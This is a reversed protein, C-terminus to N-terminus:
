TLTRFDACPKYMEIHRFGCSRFYLQSVIATPNMQLANSDKHIKVCKIFRSYLRQQGEMAYKKGNLCICIGEIGVSSLHVAVEAKIM